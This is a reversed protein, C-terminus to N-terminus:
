IHVLGGSANSKKSTQLLSFVNGGTLNVYGGNTDGDHDENLHKLESNSNGGSLSVTGGSSPGAANGAALKLSGGGALSSAGPRISITGSTLESDGTALNVPGSGAAGRTTGTTLDLYGSHGNTSDATRTSISGSKAGFKAM